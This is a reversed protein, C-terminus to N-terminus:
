DIHPHDSPENSPEKNTSAGPFKIIEGRPARGYRTTAVKSIREEVLARDRSDAQRCELAFRAWAQALGVPTREGPKPLPIRERTAVLRRADLSLMKDWDYTEIFEVCAACNVAICDEIAVYRPSGPPDADVCSLGALHIV